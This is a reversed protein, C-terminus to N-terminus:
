YGASSHSFTVVFLPIVEPILSVQSLYELKKREARKVYIHVHQM